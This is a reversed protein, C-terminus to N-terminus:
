SYRVGEDLCSWPHFHGFSNLDRDQNDTGCMKLIPEHSITDYERNLVYDHSITDYGRNLVLDHSVTDYGRNLDLDRRVADYM